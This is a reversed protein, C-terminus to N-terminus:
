LMFASCISPSIVSRVLAMMGTWKEPLRHSMSRIMADGPLVPQRRPLHACARVAHFVLSLLERSREAIEVTEAKLLRLVQRGAFPIIRV